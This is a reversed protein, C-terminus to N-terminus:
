WMRWGVTGQGKMGAISSMEPESMLIHWHTSLLCSSNNNSNGVPVMNYRAESDECRSNGKDLIDKLGKKALDM